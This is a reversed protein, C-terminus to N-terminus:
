ELRPTAMMALQRLYYRPDVDDGYVYLERRERSPTQRNVCSFVEKRDGHLFSAVHLDDNARVSSLSFNHFRGAEDRVHPTMNGEDDLRTM